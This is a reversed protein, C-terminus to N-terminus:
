VLDLLIPISHVIPGVLQAPISYKGYGKRRLFVSAGITLVTLAPALYLVQQMASPESVIESLVSVMFGFPFVVFAVLFNLAISVKEAVGYVVQPDKRILILCALLALLAMVTTFM